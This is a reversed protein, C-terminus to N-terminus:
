KPPMKVLGRNIELGSIIGGHHSTGGRRKRETDGRETGSRRRVARESGTGRMGETEMNVTLVIGNKM